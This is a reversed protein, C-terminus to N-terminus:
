DIKIVGEKVKETIDELFGLNLLEQITYRTGDTKYKIYQVGGGVSGFWPAVNGSTIEFKETPRYYYENSGYYNPPLARLEFSDKSNGLFEGTPEGYRKFVMKEDVYIDVISGNIFGDNKPWHIKGTSQDYFEPNDFVEKHKTYLEDSPRYSWSDIKQRDTDSIVKGIPLHINQQVKGLLSAGFVNQKDNFFRSSGGTISGTTL